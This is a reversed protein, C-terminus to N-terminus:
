QQRLGLEDVAICSAPSAYVSCIWLKHMAFRALVYYTCNVALKGDECSISDHENIISTSIQTCRYELLFNTYTEITKIPAGKHNSSYVVLKKSSMSSM